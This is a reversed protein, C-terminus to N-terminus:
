FEQNAKPVESSGLAIQCAKQKGQQTESTKVGEKIVLVKYNKGLKKKGKKNKLRCQSVKPYFLHTKFPRQELHQWHSNQKEFSSGNRFTLFDVKMLTM